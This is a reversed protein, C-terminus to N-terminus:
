LLQKQNSTQGWRPRHKHGLKRKSYNLARKNQRRYSKWSSM